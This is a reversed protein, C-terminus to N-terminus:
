MEGKYGAHVQRQTGPRLAPNPFFSHPPTRLQRPLQPSLPNQHWSSITGEMVKVGLSDM